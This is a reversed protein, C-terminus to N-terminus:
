GDKKKGNTVFKDVIGLGIIGAIIISWNMPIDTIDSNALSIKVYSFIFSVTVWFSILRKISAKGDPESFFSKLWNWQEALWKIFEM